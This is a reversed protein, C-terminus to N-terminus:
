GLSSVVWSSPRQKKMESELYSKWNRVFKLIGILDNEMGRGLKNSIKQRVRTVVSWV